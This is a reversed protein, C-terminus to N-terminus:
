AENRVKAHWLLLVCPFVLETALLFLVFPAPAGHMAWAVLRSAGAFLSVWMTAKFVPEFRKIDNSCLWLVVGYLAYSVGYFRNQSNLSPENIVEQPLKAGLLAEASVGLILHLAAVVLLVPAFVKLVFLLSPM